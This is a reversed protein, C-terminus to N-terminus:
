GELAKMRRLMEEESVDERHTAISWQNGIPDVVRATRDGYFQDRPAEKSVAGAAVALAHVADVDAVYVSVAAAPLAHDGQPDGTMILSDGLRLEAHAVAGDPMDYRRAVQAGFVRTAFEILRAGGPIAPIVTPMDNPKWPVPM